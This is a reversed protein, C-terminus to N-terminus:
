VFRNWGDVEFHIHGLTHGRCRELRVAAQGPSLHRCEQPSQDAIVSRSLRICLQQHPREKSLAKDFLSEDMFADCTTLMVM